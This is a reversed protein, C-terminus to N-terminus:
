GEETMDAVKIIYDIDILWQEGSPLELVMAADDFDVLKGAVPTMGGGEILVKLMRGKRGALFNRTIDCCEM